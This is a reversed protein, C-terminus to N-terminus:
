NIIAKGTQENTFQITLENISIDVIDGIISHGNEDQIRVAPYKGLNHEVTWIESPTEQTHIYNKDAITTMTESDPEVVTIGDESLKVMLLMGGKGGYSIFTDLLDIFKASMTPDFHLIPKGSSPSMQPFDEAPGFQKSGEM